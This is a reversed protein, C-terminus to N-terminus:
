YGHAIPHTHAAELRSSRSVPHGAVYTGHCVSSGVVDRHIWSKQYIRFNEALLDTKERLYHTSIRPSRLLNPTLPQM